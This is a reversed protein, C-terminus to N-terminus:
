DHDQQLGSDYLERGQALLRARRMKREQLYERGFLMRFDTDTLYENGDLFEEKPKYFRCPSLFETLAKCNREGYAFCDKRSCETVISNEIEINNDM